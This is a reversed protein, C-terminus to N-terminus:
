KTAALVKERRLQAVALEAERTPAWSPNWKRNEELLKEARDLDGRRALLAALQARGEYVFRRSEFERWPNPPNALTELLPLAAEDKGQARLAAAMLM